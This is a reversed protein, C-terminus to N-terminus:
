QEACNLNSPIQTQVFPISRSFVEQPMFLLPLTICFNEMGDLKSDLQCSLAIVQRQIKKINTPQHLHYTPVQLSFLLQTGCQCYINFIYQSTSCFFHKGFQSAPYKPFLGYSAIWFFLFILLFIKFIYIPVQTLVIPLLELEHIM